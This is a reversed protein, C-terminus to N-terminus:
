GQRGCGVYPTQIDKSVGYTPTLVDLDDMIVMSHKQPQVRNCVFIRVAHLLHLFGASRDVPFIWFSRPPYTIM